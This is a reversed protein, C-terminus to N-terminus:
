RLVGGSRRENVLTAMVIGQVQNAIQKQAQASLSEGTNEVSINISGVEVKSGSMQDNPVITGSRGPVFLEPGREGVVYPAGATVPGGEARFGLAGGFGGINLNSPFAVPGAGTFGKAKSGGGFISTASEIAKIVLLQTIIQAAMDFFSNAINKFLNSLAEQTTATGEIVSYFSDTFATGISRAATEVQNAPELLKALDEKAQLAAKEMPSVQAFSTQTGFALATNNPVPGAFPTGQFASRGLENSIGQVTTLMSEYAEMRIQTIKALAIESNYVNLVAKQNEDLLENISDQNRLYEYSVQLVKRETEDTELLLGLEEDMNNRLALGAKRSTELARALKEQEQAQERAAQVSARELVANEKNLANRKILAKNSEYEQKLLDFAINRSEKSAGAFKTALERQKDIYEIRKRELEATKEAQINSLEKATTGGTTTARALQLDVGALDVRTNLASILEQTKSVADDLEGNFLSMWANMNELADKGAVFEIAMATAGKIGAGVGSVVFNFTKLIGNVIALAGTLATTFPLALLSVSYSITATFNNWTANLLNGSNAIDQQADAFVGTQIAVENAVVAQAAVQDGIQKYLAVQDSLNQTINIGLEQLKELDINRVANGLDVAKQVAADLQAGIAGGLIQGGFGKGFFSGLASGAVSGAGGGFLLPFGVGLALNEAFKGAGGYQAAKKALRSVISDQNLLAESQNLLLNLKMRQYMIDTSLNKNIQAQYTAQTRAAAAASDAEVTGLQTAPGIQLGAQQRALRIITEYREGLIEAKAAAQAYAGALDQVEQGQNQLSVTGNRIQINVNRLAEAFVDATQAAGAYTASIQRTGEKNIAKARTLIKDLALAVQDAGAGAGPKLLNIPKLQKALTQVRAVTAAVRDLSRENYKVNLLIDANYQALVSM